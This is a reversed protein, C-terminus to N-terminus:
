PRAQLLKSDGVFIQLLPETTFQKREHDSLDNPLSSHLSEPIRVSFVRQLTTPSSTVPASEALIEFDFESWRDVVFERISADFKQASSAGDINYYLEPVGDKVRFRSFIRIERAEKRGGTSYCNGSTTEVVEGFGTPLTPVHVRWNFRQREQEGPMFTVMFQEEDKVALTGFEESLRDYEAKLENGKQNAHYLLMASVAIVIGLLINIFKSM